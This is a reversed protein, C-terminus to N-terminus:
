QRMSRAWKQWEPISIVNEYREKSVKEMGLSAKLWAHDGVLLEVVPDGRGIGLECENTGGLTGRGLDLGNTNDIAIRPPVVHATAGAGNVISAVCAQGGGASM